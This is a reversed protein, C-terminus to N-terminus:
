FHERLVANGSEVRFQLLAKVNGPNANSDKITTDEDRYGGLAMNQKGCWIISKLISKLKVCNQAVLQAHGRSAMDYVSLQHHEMRRM